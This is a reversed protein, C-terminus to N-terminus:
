IDDIYIVRLFVNKNYISEQSQNFIYVNKHYVNKHYETTDAYSSAKM